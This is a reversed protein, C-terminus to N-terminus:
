AEVGVAVLQQDALLLAVLAESVGGGGRRAGAHRGLRKRELGDVGVDREAAELGPGRSRGAAAGAPNRRVAALVRAGVLVTDRDDVLAAACGPEPDAVVATHEPLVMGGTRREGVACPGGRRM